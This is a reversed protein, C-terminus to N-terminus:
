KELLKEIQEKDFSVPHGRWVIRGDRDILFATPVGRIGYASAQDSEFGPNRDCWYQPVRDWQNRRIHRRLTGLDEDISAGLLVVRDKWAERKEDALKNLEAMPEQCPGCWTAWFDMYVVKGRLSSVTLTTDVTAGALSIDPAMDGAGPPIRIQIEGPGGAKVRFRTYDKDAEWLRLRVSESGQLAFDYTVLKSRDTTERDFGATLGRLEATGDAALTGSLVTEEDGSAYVTLEYPMAVAVSGGSKTVRVRVNTPGRFRAPDPPDYELDIRKSEGSRVPLPESASGVPFGRRGKPGDAPRVSVYYKGPALDRFDVVTTTGKGSTSIGTYWHSPRKEVPLVANVELEFEARTFPVKGALRPAPAFQVTGSGPKPLRLTLRGTAITETTLPDSVFFRLFGPHDVLIGTPSSNPDMLCTFRGPATQELNSMGVGVASTTQAVSFALHLTTEDVLVPALDAPLSGGPWPEIEVDMRKGRALRVEVPGTTAADLKRSAPPYGPALVGVTLPKKTEAPIGGPAAWFVFRDGQLTGTTPLVNRGIGLMVSARTVPAGNEDVVRVQVTNGAPTAPREAASTFSAIILCVPLIFAPRFAHRM